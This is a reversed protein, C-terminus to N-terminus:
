RRRLPIRSIQMTSKGGHVCLGGRRSGVTGLGDVDAIVQALPPLAAMEALKIECTVGLNGRTV